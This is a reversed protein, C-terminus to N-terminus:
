KGTWVINEFNKPIVPLLFCRCGIHALPSIHGSPFEDGVKVEGAYENAMCIDCTREDATVIWKVYEINNRRYVEMEVTNMANMVETETIIEARSEAVSSLRNRIDKVIQLATAGNRKGILISETIWNQTSKDLAKGLFDIRDALRQKISRNLLHFESGKKLKNIGVQGGYEGIYLLFSLIFLESGEVTDLFSDWDDYLDSDDKKILGFLEAIIDLQVVSLVQKKIAEEVRKKFEKVKESKLIKYLAVNVGNTSFYKELLLKIQELQGIPLTSLDDVKPLLTPLEMM